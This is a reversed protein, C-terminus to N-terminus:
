ANGGAGYTAEPCGARSPCEVARPYSGRFGETVQVDDFGSRRKSDGDDGNMKLSIEDTAVQNDTRYGVVPCLCSIEGFPLSRYKEVASCSLPRMGGLIM